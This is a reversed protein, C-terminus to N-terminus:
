RTPRWEFRASLIVDSGYIADCGRITADHAGELADRVREIEDLIAKTTGCAQDYTKGQQMLQDRISSAFQKLRGAETHMATTDRGIQQLREIIHKASRPNSPDTGSIVVTKDLGM